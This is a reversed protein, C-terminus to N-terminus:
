NKLFTKQCRRKIFFKRIPTLSISEKLLNPRKKQWLLLQRQRLAAYIAVPLCHIGLNSHHLAGNSCATTLASTAQQQASFLLQETRAELEANSTDAKSLGVTSSDGEIQETTAINMLKILDAPLVDHKKYMEDSFVQYGHVLRNPLTQLRHWLGLGLALDDPIEHESTANLDTLANSVLILRARYDAQIQEALATDTDSPSFRESASASLMSICANANTKNGLFAQVSVCAPHASNGRAFRAIEEHWWHIKKEAVQPDSVRILTNSLEDIFALTDIVRTQQETNCDLLAYYASSGDRPSSKM